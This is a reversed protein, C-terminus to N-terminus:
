GSSGHWPDAGGKELWTMAEAAEVADDEFIEASEDDSVSMLLDIGRAMAAPIRKERSKALPGYYARMAAHTIAAKGPASKPLGARADRWPTERHSLEILTNADLPGYFALVASVTAAQSATLADANGKL